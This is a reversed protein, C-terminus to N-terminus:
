DPPSATFEVRLQTSQFRRGSPLPFCVPRQPLQHDMLALAVLYTRTTVEATGLGLLAAISRSRLVDRPKPLQASSGTWSTRKVDGGTVAPGRRLSPQHLSDQLLTFSPPKFM